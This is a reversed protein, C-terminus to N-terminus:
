ADFRNGQTKIIEVLEAPELPRFGEEDNNLYDILNKIGDFVITMGDTLAVLTYRTSKSGVLWGVKYAVSAGFQYDKSGRPFSDRVIMQGCGKATIDIPSFQVKTKM